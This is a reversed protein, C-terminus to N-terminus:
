THEFFALLVVKGKQSELSFRENLITTVAFDPAKQGLFAGEALLELVINTQQNRAITVLLVSSAKNDGTVLLKHTGITLDSVLAPNPFLGLKIDDLDIALSKIAPDSATIKLSGTFLEPITPPAEGCQQLLFWSLLFLLLGIARTRNM